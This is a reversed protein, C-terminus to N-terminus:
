GKGKVTYDSANDIRGDTCGCGVWLYFALAVVLVFRVIPRM